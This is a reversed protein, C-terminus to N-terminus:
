KIIIKKNNHMDAIMDDFVILTKRKKNPNYEEINKCIDNMKNSYESFAKWNNASEIKNNLFRHKAEYPDKVYLHIKDIDPEYNILNLLANIGGFGSGKATLIGRPHDLIEPWNLNHEKINEKM